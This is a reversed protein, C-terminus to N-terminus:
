RRPVDVKPQVSFGFEDGSEQGNLEFATPLWFDGLSTGTIGLSVISVVSTCISRM